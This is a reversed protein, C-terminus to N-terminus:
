RAFMIADGFGQEIYLYVTKGALPEGNWEPMRFDPRMARANGVAWRWEYEDWGAAFDGVVLYALARHFRADAYTPNIEIARTFAAIAERYRATAALALGRGNHAVPQNPRLVLAREYSAKAEDLRGMRELIAGMDSATEGSGPNSRMAAQILRLAEVHEGRRSCMVARRNLAAFNTPDLELVARYLQEAEELKGATELDLARMLQPRVDPPPKRKGLPKRM